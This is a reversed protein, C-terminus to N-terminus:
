IELTFCAGDDINTAYIKGSYKDVVMKALYLGMGSGGVSEKTTIHPAFITDIVSEDIGGANDQVKIITKTDSEQVDISIVRSDINKLNFQDKSNNILNIFLNKIDNENANIEINKDCTIDLDIYNGRLDNSLLMKISEFMSNLNFISINTNPKIFSRFGDVTKLLHNVQNEIFQYCEIADERPITPTNSMQAFMSSHLSILTLPQKWQHAIVDMIEGMAALKSQQILADDKSQLEKIQQNVREELSKKYSDIDKKIYVKELIREISNALSKRSIPKLLYGDVGIDITKTFYHTDSHASIVVTVISPDIDKIKTLMDIGNINPMMIDTFIIDVDSVFSNLGEEGDEAVIVEGFINKFMDAMLERTELHDEVYLVKLSKAFSLLESKSLTGKIM